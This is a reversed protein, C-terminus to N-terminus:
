GDDFAQRLPQALFTGLNTSVTNLINANAGLVTAPFMQGVELYETEVARVQMLDLTQELSALLEAFSWQADSRSPAAVLVAQPAQAKPSKYHFAVGTEEAKNPIM